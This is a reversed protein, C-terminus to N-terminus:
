SLYGKLNAGFVGIFQGAALFGVAYNTVEGQAVIRHLRHDGAIPRQTAGVHARKIARAADRGTAKKVECQASFVIVLQGNEARMALTAVHRMNADGLGAFRACGGNLRNNRGGAVIAQFFSVLVPDVRYHLANEDGGGVM